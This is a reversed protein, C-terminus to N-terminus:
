PVNSPRSIAHIDRATPLESILQAPSTSHLVPRSDVANSHLRELTEIASPEVLAGDANSVMTNESVLTATVTTTAHMTPEMKSMMSLLSTKHNKLLKKLKTQASTALEVEEGLTANGCSSTSLKIPNWVEESLTQLMRRQALHLSVLLSPIPLILSFTTFLRSPTTVRPSPSLPDVLLLFMM